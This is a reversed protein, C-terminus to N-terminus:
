RRPAEPDVFVRPSERETAWGRAMRRTNFVAGVRGSADVLIL